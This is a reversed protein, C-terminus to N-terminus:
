LHEFMLNIDKGNHQDFGLENQLVVLGFLCAAVFSKSEYVLLVLLGSASPRDGM